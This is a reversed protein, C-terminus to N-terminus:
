LRTPLLFPSHCQLFKGEEKGLSLDTSSISAHRPFYLTLLCHLHHINSASISPLPVSAPGAKYIGQIFNWQRVGRPSSYIVWKEDSPLYKRENRWRTRDRNGDGSWKGHQNLTVMTLRRKSCSGARRLWLHGQATLAVARESPRFAVSGSM